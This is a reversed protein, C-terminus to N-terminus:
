RLANRSRIYWGELRLGDSTTFQVDEYRAGLDPSPVTSRAAHTVAYAIAVPFLVAVTLFLVGAVLLLRRVYRWVLSDDRRRSRWLTTAGLGILLLGAAISLLGTFDDGSPGVTRTYHVAETAVLLGFYGGLLAITARAGARVRGYVVGAGVLLALPILGSVLHDVPSTGPNPQIFNDDVVHLSIVAFALRALGVESRLAAAVRTAVARRSDASPHAVTSM